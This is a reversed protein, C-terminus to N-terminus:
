AVAPIVGKWPSFFPGPEDKLADPGFCYVVYDQPLAGYYLGMMLSDRAHQCIMPPRMVEGTSDKRLHYTTKLPRISFDRGVKRWTGYPVIEGSEMKYGVPTMAQEM